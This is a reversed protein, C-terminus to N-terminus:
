NGTMGGVVDRLGRSPPSLIGATEQVRKGTVIMVGHLVTQRKYSFM